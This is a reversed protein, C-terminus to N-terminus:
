PGTTPILYKALIYGSRGDPPLLQVHRWVGVAKNPDPEDPGIIKLKAGEGVSVVIRNGTQRATNRMPVSQGGANAVQVYEVFPTPLATPAAPATPVVEAVATQTAFVGTGPTTEPTPDNINLLGKPIDTIAKAMPPTVRWILFAFALALVLTVITLGSCGVRRPPRYLPYEEPELPLRPQPTETPM